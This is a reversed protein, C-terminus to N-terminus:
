LSANYKSAAEKQMTALLNSNMHLVPTRTEADDELGKAERLIGEGSSSHGSEMGLGMGHCLVTNQLAIILETHLDEKLLM